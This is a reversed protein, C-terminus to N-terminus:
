VPVRSIQSRPFWTGPLRLGDILEPAITRKALGLARGFTAQTIPAVSTFRWDENRTTPLGAKNFQDWASRRLAVLWEPENDARVPITAELEELFTATM